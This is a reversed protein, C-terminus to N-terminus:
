GVRCARIFSGFIRGSLESTDREPHWQVGVLFGYEDGCCAEVIGDGAVACASLGKGLVRVAQHHSSNVRYTGSCILNKPSFMINHDGARHNMSGTVQQEIDQYLAGGSCVNILQMGYCIGLVPKNRKMIERMLCFEFDTRDADEPDVRCTEGEGYLAPRLDRGGPILLGDFRAACDAANEGPSIFSASGGSRMIAKIYQEASRPLSQTGACTICIRPVNNHTM